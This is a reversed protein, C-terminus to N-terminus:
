FGAKAFENRVEEEKRGGEGMKEMERGLEEVKGRVAKMMGQNDLRGPGPDVPREMGNKAEAEDGALNKIWKKALEMGEADEQRVFIDRLEELVKMCPSLQQKKAKITPLDFHSEIEDMKDEVEENVREREEHIRRKDEQIEKSRYPTDYGMLLFKDEDQNNNKYNHDSM